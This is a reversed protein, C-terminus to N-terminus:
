IIYGDISLMPFIVPVKSINLFETKSSNELLDNKLLWYIIESTCDYIESHSNMFVIPLKLLLQIDDVYIHYSIDPYKNITVNIYM